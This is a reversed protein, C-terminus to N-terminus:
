SVLKPKDAGYMDLLCKTGDTSWLGNAAMEIYLQVFHASQTM